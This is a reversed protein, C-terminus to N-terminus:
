AAGGSALLAATYTGVGIDQADLLDELTDVDRRLGPHAVADTLDLAGSDLHARASSTGFRPDLAARSSALLVTGEGHADRVFGRAGDPLADLLQALARADLAPLDSSIAVVQDYGQTGAFSQAHALAPNLGADPDDDVWSAGLENVSARAREDNTIAIVREVSDCRTAAAIVDLAMALALDPRQVEGPPTLRSKALHLEKIPVLM